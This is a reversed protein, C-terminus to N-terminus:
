HFDRDYKAVIFLGGEPHSMDFLYVKSYSPEEEYAKNVCVTFANIANRYFHMDRSYIENGDEDYVSVHYRRKRAM